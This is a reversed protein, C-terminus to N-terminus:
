RIQPAEEVREGLVQPTVPEQNYAPVRRLLAGGGTPALRLQKVGMGSAPPLEALVNPVLPYSVQGQRGPLSLAHLPLSEGEVYKPV